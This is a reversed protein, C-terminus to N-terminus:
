RAVTKYSERYELGDIELIEGHSLAIREAFTTLQGLTLRSLQDLTRTERELYIALLAIYASQKTVTVQMTLRGKPVEPLIEAVLTEVQEILQTAPEQNAQEAKRLQEEAQRLEEIRQREQERIRAAYNDRIQQLRETLSGKKKPDLQSELQVFNSRIADFAQTVPERRIKLLELTRRARVLYDQLYADDHPTMSEPQLTLLDGAAEIARQLQNRNEDFIQSLDTGAPLMAPLNNTTTM